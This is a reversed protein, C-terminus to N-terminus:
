AACRSPARGGSPACRSRACGGSAPVGEENELHRWPICVHGCFLLDVGGANLIPAFAKFAEAEMSWDKHVLAVVWPTKARDVGALDAKMFTLQNALFVESRAYIYAEASFVIFHTLGREFSYFIASGTNSNLAVSHVRATYESFNGKSYPDVANAPCNPCAEDAHTITQDRLNPHTLRPPYTGFLQKSPSVIAQL